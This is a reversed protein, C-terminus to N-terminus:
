ALPIWNVGELGTEKLHIKIKDEWRIRCRTPRKVEVLIKYGNRIVGTCAAHGAQRIRKSNIM